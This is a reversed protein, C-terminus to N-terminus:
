LRPSRVLLSRVLQSRVLHDLLYDDVLNDNAERARQHVHLCARQHVHLHRSACQCVRELTAEPLRRTWVHRLMSVKETPGHTTANTSREACAGRSMHTDRERQASARLDHRTAWLVLCKISALLWSVLRVGHSPGAVCDLTRAFLHPPSSRTPPSVNPPHPRLIDLSSATHCVRVAAPGLPLSTSSTHYYKRPAARPM